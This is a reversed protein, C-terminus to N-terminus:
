FNPEIKPEYMTLTLSPVWSFTTCNVVEEESIVWNDNLDQIINFHSFPAFEQGLLQDKQSVTLIAVNM